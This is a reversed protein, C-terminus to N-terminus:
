AEMEKQIDEMEKLIEMERETSKKIELELKKLEVPKATTYLHNFGAEVANKFKLQSSASRNYSAYLAEGVELASLLRSRLNDRLLSDRIIEAKNNIDSYAATILENNDLEHEYTEKSHVYKVVLYYMRELLKSNVTRKIFYKLLKKAYELQNRKQVLVLESVNEEKDELEKVENTLTEVKETYKSIYDDLDIKRSQTFFQIPFDMGNLLEGFNQELMIREDESMLNFNIGKVEMLGIYTDEDYKILAVDESCIIIDDFDLLDQSDIYTVNNKNQTKDVSKKKPENKASSKKKSTNKNRKSKASDLYLVYGVGGICAVCIFIMLVALVQM